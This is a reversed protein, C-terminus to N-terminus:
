SQDPSLQIRWVAWLSVAVAVCGPIILAWGAAYSGTWGTFGVGAFELGIAGLLLFAFLKLPYHPPQGDM